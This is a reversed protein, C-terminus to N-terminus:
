EPAVRSDRRRSWVVLFAGAAVLVVGAILPGATAGLERALLLAVIGPTVLAV